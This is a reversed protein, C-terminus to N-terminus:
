EENQIKDLEKQLEDREEIVSCLPCYRSDYVIEEHDSDCLKM